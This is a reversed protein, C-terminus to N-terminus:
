SHGGSDELIRGLLRDIGQDWLRGGGVVHRRRTGSEVREGSLSHRAEQIGHALRGIDLSERLEFPRRASRGPWKAGGMRGASVGSISDARRATARTTAIARLYSWPASRGAGDIETRWTLSKMSPTM